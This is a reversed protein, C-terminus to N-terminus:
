KPPTGGACWSHRKARMDALKQQQEPTLIAAMQAKVGERLSKIAEHRQEPTLTTDARLAAWKDAEGAKVAKLQVQQDPTLGLKRVFRAVMKAKLDAHQEPTLVAFVAQHATRQIERLQKHQADASLGENGKVAEEEAVAGSIITSIQAKQEDTAGVEVGIKELGTLSECKGGSGAALTTHALAVLAVLAILTGAVLIYTKM